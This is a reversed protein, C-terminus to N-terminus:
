HHADGYSRRFLETKLTRRFFGGNKVVNCMDTVWEIGPVGAAKIMDAVVGSPGSAKNMKM